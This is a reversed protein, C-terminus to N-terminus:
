VGTVEIARNQDTCFPMAKSLLHWRGPRLGEEFCVRLIPTPDAVRPLLSDLEPLLLSGDIHVIRAALGQELAQLEHLVVVEISQQSQVGLELQM